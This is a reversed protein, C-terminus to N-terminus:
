GVFGQCHALFADGPTYDAHETPGEENVPQQCENRSCSGDEFRDQLCDRSCVGWLVRMEASVGQWVRLALPMPTIM